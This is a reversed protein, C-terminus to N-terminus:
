VAHDYADNFISVEKFFGIFGGQRSKKKAPQESENTREAMTSLPM